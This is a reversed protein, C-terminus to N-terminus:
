YYQAKLCRLRWLRSLLKTSKYTDICLHNVYISIKCKIKTENEYARNHKNQENQDSANNTATIDVTVKTCSRSCKGDIKRAYKTELLRKNIVQM